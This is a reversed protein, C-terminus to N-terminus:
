SILANIWSPMTSGPYLDFTASYKGKGNVVLEIGDNTRRVYAEGGFWPCDRPEGCIRV